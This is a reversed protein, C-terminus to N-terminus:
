DPKLDLERVLRSWREIDSRVLTRTQDASLALPKGGAKRFIDAVEASAIVRELEGRL